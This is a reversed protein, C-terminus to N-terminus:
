GNDAEKKALHEIYSQPVTDGEHVCSGGYRWVCERFCEECVKYDQGECHVDFLPVGESFCHGCFGDTSKAM